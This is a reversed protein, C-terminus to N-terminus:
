PIRWVLISYHITTGKELPDEWSLSQVQTEQMAPLNKGTQAVLFAWTYVYKGKYKLDICEYVPGM